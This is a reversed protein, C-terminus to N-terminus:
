PLQITIAAASRIVDNVINLVSPAVAPSSSLIWRGAPM